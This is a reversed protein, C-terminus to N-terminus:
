CPRFWRFYRWRARREPVGEAIIVLTRLQPIAMAELTTPYASRYSAEAALAQGSDSTNILKAEYREAESGPNILASVSPKARRCAFDFDLMRQVAATQMGYILATTNKDFLQYSPRSM